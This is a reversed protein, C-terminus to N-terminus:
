CDCGYAKYGNSIVGRYDISTLLITLIYCLTIFVVCTYRLLSFFGDNLLIYFMITDNASVELGGGGGVGSGDVM